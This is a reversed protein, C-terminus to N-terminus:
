KEGAFLGYGTYDMFSSSAKAGEKMMKVYNKKWLYKTLLLFWANLMRRLGILKIRELIETIVGVRFVEHKIKSIGASRMLSVWEEESLISSGFKVFYSVVEKTPEKAWTAENMCVRGGKKAVRAFERIAAEKNQVFSLVSECVVADFINDAFPLEQADAVRFEVLPSVGEIEANKKAWEIMRPSVDVGVVRCGYKKALLAPGLGIGCGVDLVYDGKKISCMSYLRKSAALGGMHKTIGLDAQSSLYDIPKAM